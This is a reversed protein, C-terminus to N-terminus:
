FIYIEEELEFFISKKKWCSKPTKVVKVKNRKNRKKKDAIKVVKGLRFQLKSVITSIQTRTLPQPAM